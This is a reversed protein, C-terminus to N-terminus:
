VTDKEFQALEDQVLVAERELESILQIAKDMEHVDEIQACLSAVKNAGISASSSKLYHAHKSLADFDANELHKRFTQLNDNIESLYTKVIEQMWEASVDEELQRLQAHSVAQSSATSPQASGIWKEIVKGLRDRSIPKSLYDDMGVSLCKEEDGKMANATMAVIPIRRGISMGEMKRITKTAQYGDMEPMQCDMLILDYQENALAEVAERGNNVSHSQYGLKNLHLSALMQNVPNDEAILIMKQAKTSGITPVGSNPSKQSLSCFNSKQLLETNPTEKNLINVITDFLQSQKLPKTLYASFGAELARQGQMSEDFATILILKLNEYEPKSKVIEAFQFGDMGPMVLDILALSYPEGEKNAIELEELANRGNFVTKAKIDWSEAYRLIIESALKDNDLILVKVERLDIRSNAISKDTQVPSPELPIIFSFTSGKGESSEVQIEGGMLDILRKSISLGLGTGGFKRATSNDAQVFPRFLKAIANAPIGIGTDIVSFRVRIKEQSFLNKTDEITAKVVVGGHTTFKVANGILNILIQGIRAQDGRMYLPLRPDVYSMLSLSKEKAKAALLEISNEVVSVISFDVYELTMKGSEIKSFDLVDNIITLLSYASNKVIEAFKNQEETLASDLLLDTMGIIGNLPTRIEHSMNALFESKHKSADLAAEKAEVLSKETEELRDINKNLLYGSTLVLFFVILCTCPIILKLWFISKDNLRDSEELSKVEHQRMVSFTIKIKDMLTKGTGMSVLHNVEKDKGNRGLEITQDMYQIKQEIASEIKKFRALQISDNSLIKKLEKLHKQLSVKSNDYPEFYLAKKSILYGRQSSEMELVLNETGELESLVTLAQKYRESSDILEVGNRYAIYAASLLILLSCLFGLNVKRILLSKM